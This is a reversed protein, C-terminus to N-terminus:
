IQDSNFKAFIVYFGDIKKKHCCQYIDNSTDLFAKFQSIKYGIRYFNEPPLGGGGKLVIKACILCLGITLLDRDQAKM